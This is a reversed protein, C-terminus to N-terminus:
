AAVFDDADIRGDENIMQFRMGYEDRQRAAHQKLTLTDPL